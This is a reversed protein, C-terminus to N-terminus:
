MACLDLAEYVPRVIRESTLSPDHYAGGGGSFNPDGAIIDAATGSPSFYVDRDGYLNTFSTTVPGAGTIRFRPAFRVGYREVAGRFLCSTLSNRWSFEDRNFSLLLTHSTGLSSQVTNTRPISIRGLWMQVVQNTLAPPAPTLTVTNASTYGTIKGRYESNTGWTMVVDVGADVDVPLFVQGGMTLTVSNSFTANGSGPPNGWWFDDMVATTDNIVQNIYTRQSQGNVDLGPMLVCQGAKGTFGGAAYTLQNTFAAWTLAGTSSVGTATTLTAGSTSVTTTVERGWLRAEYRLVNASTDADIIFTNGPMPSLGIHLKGILPWVQSGGGSLILEASFSHSDVLILFPNAPTLSWTPGEPLEQLERHYCSAGFMVQESFSQLDVCGVAQTKAMTRILVETHSRGDVNWACAQQPTAIANAKATTLLIDPARGGSDNGSTHGLNLGAQVKIAHGRWFDNHGSSSMFYLDTGAIRWPLGGGPDVMEAWGVGINAINQFIFTKRPNQRRMLGEWMGVPNWSDSQATPDYKAISDGVEVTNITTNAVVRPMHLRAIVDRVPPKPPPARNPVLRKPLLRGSIDTLVGTVSPDGIWVTQVYTQNAVATFNRYYNDNTQRQALAFACYVTKAQGDTRPHWIYKIGKAIVDPQVNAYAQSNDTGWSVRVPQGSNATTFNPAITNTVTVQNGALIASITGTYAMLGSNWAQRILSVAGGEVRISKNLDTSQFAPWCLIASTVTAPANDAVSVSSGNLFATIKTTLVVGSGDTAQIYVYKGVINPDFGPNTKMDSVTLTNGTTNYTVPGNFRTLTLTNGAAAWTGSFVDDNGDGVAGYKTIDLTDAPSATVGGGGGGSFGPATLTGQVQMNQVLVTGDTGVALAINGATDRWWRALDPMVAGADILDGSASFTLNGSLTATAANVATANVITAAFVNFTVTGYVRLNQLFLTSDVGLAEVINGAADRRWWALDPVMPTGPQILSGDNFGVVTQGQTSGGTIAVANANQIAMTGNVSSYPIRYSGTGTNVIQDGVAWTATGDISTSGAVTVMYYDGAVGWGGGSALTPTNTSANWSGRPHMGTVIGAPLQAPPLHGAADLTAIGNPQGVTALTAAFGADANARTAAEVADANTRNTTETALNATLTNDAAIRAAEENAIKAGLDGGGGFAYFDNIQNYAWIAWWKSSYLGGPQGSVPEYFLGEPFPTGTVYAPAQAEDVVPGDLYEAWKLAEDASMASQTAFSNASNAANVASGAQSTAQNSSVLAADANTAADAAHGSSADANANATSSALDASSASGAADSVLGNIEAVGAATANNVDTVGTTTANEIQALFDTQLASDPVSGPKLTGDPAFVTSVFTTVDALSANSRDFEADLKDGPQPETPHNVSWDTFSFQRTPPVPPVAM